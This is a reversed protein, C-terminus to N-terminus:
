REHRAVIESAIDRLKRNEMQSQERLLGFAEDASCGTTAMIVGKAQEIVARSEIARVLGTAESAASWYLGAVACQGAFPHARQRKAADFYGM